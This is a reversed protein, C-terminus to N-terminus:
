PILSSDKKLLWTLSPDKKAWEKQTKDQNFVYELYSSAELTCRDCEERDNSCFEALAAYYCALNYYGLLPLMPTEPQRDSIRLGGDKFLLLNGEKDIAITDSEHALAMTYKVKLDDIEANALSL